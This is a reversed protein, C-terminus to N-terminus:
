GYPFAERFAGVAERVRDATWIKPIKAGEAADLLRRATFPLRPRWLPTARMAAPALADLAVIFGPFTDAEEAAQGGLAWLNDIFAKQHALAQTAEHGRAVAGRGPVLVRPKYPALRDLTALWEAALADGIFPTVGREVLDGSFMAGADQVWAVADGSTHGRGFHLLEVKRGGLFLGLASKFTFRAEPPAAVGGPSLDVGDRLHGVELEGAGRHLMETRCKRSTIIEAGPFVDLHAWRSAHFHTLAVWRVPGLDLKAIQKSLDAAARANAQGDVVMLGDDGAIVGSVPGDGVSYVWIRDAIETLAPM